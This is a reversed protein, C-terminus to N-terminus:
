SIDKIKYEPLREGPEYDIITISNQQTDIIFNVLRKNTNNIGVIKIQEKNQKQEQSNKSKIYKDIIPKIIENYDTTIKDKNKNNLTITVINNSTTIDYIPFEQKKDLDTGISIVNKNLDIMFSYDINNYKGKFLEKCGRDKFATLDNFLEGTEKECGPNKDPHILVSAKRYEKISCNDNNLKYTNLIKEKEKCDVKKEEEMKSDDDIGDVKVPEKKEVPKSQQGEVPQAQGTTQQRKQQQQKLKEQFAKQDEKMKQKMEDETLKKPIDKQEQTQQKQEGEAHQEEPQKQEQSQGTSQQAQAGEAHLEVKKSEEKELNEKISKVKQLRKSKEFNLDDDQDKNSKPINNKFYRYSQIIIKCYYYEISTTDCREEMLKIIEDYSRIKVDIDVNANNFCNDFNSKFEGIFDANTKNRKSLELTEKEIEKKKDEKEKTIQEIYNNYNNVLELKRFKLDDDSVNNVNKELEEIQKKQEEEEEKIM